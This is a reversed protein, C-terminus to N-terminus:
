SVVTPRQWTICNQILFSPIESKAFTNNGFLNETLCNVRKEVEPRMEVFHTDNRNKLSVPCFYHTGSVGIEENDLNIIRNRKRVPVPYARFLKYTTTEVAIATFLISVTKKLSFM